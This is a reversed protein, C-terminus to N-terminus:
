SERELADRLVEVLLDAEAIGFPMPPRIKLVNGSPGDVGVLVGGERMANMVRQATERSPELSGPDRVLDVGVFLGSGRVDAIAANSHALEELRARLHRGVRLANERLRERALVDLVALGAAASVPNGGFTNFYGHEGLAGAIERRTLVAAIPHGNGMPKGLTVIDPVV